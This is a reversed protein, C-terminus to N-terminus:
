HAMRGATRRRRIEAAVEAHSAKWNHRAAAPRAKREMVECAMNWLALEHDTMGSVPRNLLSLLIRSLDTDNM